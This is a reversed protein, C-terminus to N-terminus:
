CIYKIYEQSSVLSEIIDRYSTFTEKDIIFNNLRSHCEELLQLNITEEQEFYYDVMVFISCGENPQELYVKYNLLLCLFFMKQQKYESKIESIVHSYFLDRFADNEFYKPEKLSTDGRLSNGRDKYIKAYFRADSYVSYVARILVPNPKKFYLDKLKILVEMWYPTENNLKHLINNYIRDRLLIGDSQLLNAFQKCVLSWQFHFKIYFSNDPNYVITYSNSFIELQIERPVAEM